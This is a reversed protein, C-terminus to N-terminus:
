IILPGIKPMPSGVIHPDRPVVLFANPALKEDSAIRGIRKGQELIEAEADRSPEGVLTAIVLASLRRNFRKM